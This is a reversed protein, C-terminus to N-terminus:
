LTHSGPLDIQKGDQWVKIRSAGQAAENIDRGVRRNADAMARAVGAEVADEIRQVLADLAEENLVPKIEIHATGIKAM